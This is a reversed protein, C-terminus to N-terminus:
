SFFLELYRCVAYAHPTNPVMSVKSGGASPLGIVRRAVALETEGSTWGSWTLEASEDIEARQKAAKEAAHRDRQSRREKSIPAEPAARSPM